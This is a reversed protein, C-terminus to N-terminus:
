PTNGPVFEGVNVNWNIVARPTRPPLQSQNSEYPEHFIEALLRDNRTRTTNLVQELEEFEQTNEFQEAGAESCNSMVSCFSDDRQPGKLSTDWTAQTGALCSNPTSPTGCSNPTSPTGCSNPTPFIRGSSRGRVLIKRLTLVYDLPKFSQFVDNKFLHNTGDHRFSEILTVEDLTQLLFRIVNVNGQICAVQLGSVYAPSGRKKIYYRNYWLKTFWRHYAGHYEDYFRRYILQLPRADKMGCASHILSEEDVKNRADTIDDVVYSPWKDIFFEILELRKDDMPGRHGIIAKQLATQGRDCWLLGTSYLFKVVELKSYQAAVQLASRGDVKTDRVWDKCGRTFFDSRVDPRDQLNDWLYQLIQPQGSWAAETLCTHVPRMKPGNRYSQGTQIEDAEPEPFDFRLERLLGESDVPQSSLDHEWIVSFVQLNGRRAAICLSKLILERTHLQRHKLLERATSDSGIFAACFLPCDFGRVIPAPAVDDAVEMGLLLKACETSGIQSAGACCCAHADSSIM